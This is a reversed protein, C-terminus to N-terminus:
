GKSNLKARRSANLARQQAMAESRPMKKGPGSKVSCVEILTLLRNLHWKDYEPPIGADIMWYYILESTVTETNRKQPGRRNITTATMKDNIYDDIVDIQKKTLSEFADLKMQGTIEMCYIYYVTQERTLSKQSLFPKKWKSEWKSVSRLSHELKVSKKPISVFQDLKEDYYEGGGIEIELM